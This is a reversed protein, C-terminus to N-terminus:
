ASLLIKSSEQLISQLRLAVAEGHALEHEWVRVVTWGEGKLYKTVARDHKRNRAVKQAWFEENSRPPSYCAPCGHWFCGDVFLAVRRRKWTFDPHGIMRVHRRWGSLGHKRLLRAMAIETSANGESRVARMIRSRTEKDVTDM